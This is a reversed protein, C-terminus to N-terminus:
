STWTIEGIYTCDITFTSQEEFEYNTGDEKVFEVEYSNSDWIELIVGEMGKTIAPNIDKNLIFVDYQKIAHLTARFKNANISVQRKFHCLKCVVTSSYLYVNLDYEEDVVAKGILGLL